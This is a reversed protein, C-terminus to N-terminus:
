KCQCCKNSKHDIHFIVMGLKICWKFFKNKSWHNRCDKQNKGGVCKPLSEICTLTCDFRHCQDIQRWCKQVIKKVIKGVFSKEFRKSLRLVISLHSVCHQHSKWCIWITVLMHRRENKDGFKPTMRKATAIKEALYNEFLKLM